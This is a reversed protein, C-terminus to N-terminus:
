AQTSADHLKMIAPKWVGHVIGTEKVAMSEKDKRKQIPNMGYGPSEPAAPKIKEGKALLHHSAALKYHQEATVPDGFSKAKGANTAYREAVDAHAESKTAFTAIENGEADRTAYPRPSRAITLRDKIRRNATADAVEQAEGKSHFHAVIQGKADKVHYPLDSGGVSWQNGHFPHGAYDGEAFQVREDNVFGVPRCIVPAINEFQAKM